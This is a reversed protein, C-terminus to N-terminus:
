WTTFRLFVQNFIFEPTESQLYSPDVNLYPSLSGMAGASGMLGPSSAGGLGGFGFPRSRQGDDMM